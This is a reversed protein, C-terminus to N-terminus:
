LTTVDLDFLDQLLTDKNTDIFNKLKQGSAANKLDTVWESESLKNKANNSLASLSKGGLWAKTVDNVTKLKNNDEFKSLDQKFPSALNNCTAIDKQAVNEQSSACFAAIVDEPTIFKTNTSNKPNNGGADSSDSGGQAGGYNKAAGFPAAHSTDLRPMALAIWTVSLAVALTLVVIIHVLFKKM